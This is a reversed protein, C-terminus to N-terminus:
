VTNQGEINKSVGSVASTATLEVVGNGANEEAVVPIDTTSVADFNKEAHAEFLAAICCLMIFFFLALFYLDGWFKYVGSFGSGCTAQNILQDYVDNIGNCEVSDSVVLLSASIDDIAGQLNNTCTNSVGFLSTINNIGYSIDSIYSGFPSNNGKCETYYTVTNVMSSGESFLGAINGSPDICFDSLGMVIVMSVTCVILLLVILVYSIISMLFSWVKSKCYVTAANGLCIGLLCLFVILVWKDKQPRQADVQNGFSDMTAVFPNALDYISQAASAISDAFSTMSNLDSPQLNSTCDASQLYNKLNTAGNNISDSNSYVAGLITGLLSVMDDIGSSITDFATTMDANGMWLFLNASFILGIASYCYKVTKAKKAEWARKKEEIEEPTRVKPKKPCCFCCCIYYWCYKWFCSNPTFCNSIILLFLVALIGLAFLIVPLTILSQLYDRNMPDFDASVISFTYPDIHLLAHTAQVEPTPKYDAM